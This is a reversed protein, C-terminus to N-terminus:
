PFATLQSFSLTRHLKLVSSYFIDVERETIDGEDILQNLTNCLMFGVFLKCTNNEVRENSERKVQAITVDGNNVKQVQEASTVKTLVQKVCTFWANYRIRILPNSRQLLLNLHILPLLVAHLSELLVEAM